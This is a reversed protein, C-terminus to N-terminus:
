VGRRRRECKWRKAVWPHSGSRYPPLKTKRKEQYHDLDRIDISYPSGPSRRVVRVDGRRLINRLTTPCVGLYLAAEQVTLWRKPIVESTTPVAQLTPVIKSM